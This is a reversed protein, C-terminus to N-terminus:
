KEICTRINEVTLSLKDLVTGNSTPAPAQVLPIGYERSEGTILTKIQSPTADTYIICKIRGTELAHKIEDLQSGTAPVGHEAIYLYRVHIGLWEVLYQVVPSSAAATINYRGALLTLNNIRDDIMNLHEAREGRCAPNINNLEEAIRHIFLKYNFPDMVPMHYNPKGTAPNDLIKIGPIDTIEILRAKIEGNSVLKRIEAEFPAHGTSVILSAKKLIEVDSPKLQYDHPDVGLPVLSVVKEEPCTIQEIDSALSPFTSVILIGTESAGTEKGGQYLLTYSGILALTIAAVVIIVTWGRTM